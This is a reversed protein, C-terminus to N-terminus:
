LHDGERDPPRLEKMRNSIKNYGDGADRQMEHAKVHQSQGRSHKVGAEPLKRTVNKGHSEGTELITSGQSEDMAMIATLSSTPAVGVRVNMKVKSKKDNQNRKMEIRSEMPTPDGARKAKPVSPLRSMMRNVSHEENQSDSPHDEEKLLSEMSHIENQFKARLNHVMKTITEMSHTGKQVQANLKDELKMAKKNIIDVKNQFKAQSKHKMKNIKEVPDTENQFESSSEHEVKNVKKLSDIENQFHAGRKHEVKMMRKVSKVENQLLAHRKNFDEVFAETAKLGLLLSEGQKTEDGTHSETLRAHRYKMLYILICIIIIIVVVLFALIWWFEQEIEVLTRWHFAWAPEYEMENRTAYTETPLDKSAVIPEFAGTKDSAEITIESALFAESAQISESAPVASPYYRDQLYWLAVSTTIWYSLHFAVKRM